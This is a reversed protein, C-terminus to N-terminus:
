VIVWIQKLKQHLKKFIILIFGIIVSCFLSIQISANIPLQQNNNENEAVLTVTGHQVGGTSFVRVFSVLNNIHGFLVMGSPGFSIAIVKTLVVNSIVRILTSVGTLLASNIFNM